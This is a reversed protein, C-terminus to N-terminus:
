LNDALLSIGIGTTTVIIARSIHRITHFKALHLVYTFEVLSLDAAHLVFIQHAHRFHHSDKSLSYTTVMNHDIHYKFKLANVPM